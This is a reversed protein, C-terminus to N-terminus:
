PMGAQRLARALLDNIAMHRALRGSALKCCSLRHHAWTYRDTYQIDFNENLELTQFLSVTHM